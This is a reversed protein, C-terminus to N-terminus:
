RKKRYSNGNKQETQKAIAICIADAMDESINTISTIDKSIESFSKNSTKELKKLQKKKSHIKKNYTNIEIEDNKKKQKKSRLIKIEDKLDNQKGIEFEISETVTEIQTETLLDYHTAVAFLIEYKKSHGSLGDISHKKWTPPDYLTIDEGLYEQCEKIACGSLRALYALVKVGSVAMIVDEMAICDPEVIDLLGKIEQSLFTLREGLSYKTPIEIVGCNILGADDVVAWGTKTALDLGLIKM